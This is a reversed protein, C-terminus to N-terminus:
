FSRLSGGEGAPLHILPPLSAIIPHIADSAFSFYGCVLTTRKGGAGFVLPGTGDFATEQLVVPLSVPQSHPSDALVHGAGHPILILDGAAVYATAGTPLGVWCTGEHVVHFRIVQRDEPVDIAFPASLDARFYLSFRLELTALIDGLLDM